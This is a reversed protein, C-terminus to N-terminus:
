LGAAALRGWPLSLGLERELADADARYHCRLAHEVQPDLQPRPEPVVNWSEFAMWCAREVEDAAAGALPFVDQALRLLLEAAAARDVRAREGGQFWHRELERPQWADDVGLFALIRALTGAPDADLTQTLEVHLQERPFCAAYAALTRGYEGQVVYSNTPDAHRRAAVLAEPRLAAALAEDLGRQEVGWRRSMRWQSIARDVPDRLLAILRVDPLTRAIRAAIEPVPVTPTGMMYQPTVTGRLSTPDADRFHTRMFSALGQEYAPESFFPAEKSSPLALQPHGRLLHWLTTTGAKQAGIVLFGFGEM